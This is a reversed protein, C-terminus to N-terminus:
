KKVGEDPQADIEKLKADLQRYMEETKVALIKQAEERASVCTALAKYYSGYYARKAEDKQQTKTLNKM